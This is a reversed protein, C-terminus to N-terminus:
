GQRALTTKLHQRLTEIAAAASLRQEAAAIWAKAPENGQEALPKLAAVAGPLDQLLLAQKAAGVANEGPVSEEDAPHLDILGSLNERTRGLWDSPAAEPVAVLSQEVADAKQALSRFIPVLRFKNLM